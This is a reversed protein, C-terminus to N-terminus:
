PGRFAPTMRSRPAPAEHTVNRLDIGIPSSESRSDATRSSRRVLCLRTPRVRTRSHSFAILVISCGHLQETSRPPAVSSLDQESPTIVIGRRSQTDSGQTVVSHCCALSPPPATQDGSCHILTSPAVTCPLVPAESHPHRSPRYVGLIGHVATSRHCVDSDPDGM